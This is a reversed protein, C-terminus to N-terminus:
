NKESIHAPLMEINRVGTMKPNADDGNQPEEKYFLKSKHLLLMFLTILRKLKFLVVAGTRICITMCLTTWYLELKLIRIVLLGTARYNCGRARYNPPCMNMYEHECVM